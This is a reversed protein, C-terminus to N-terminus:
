HLPPPTITSALAEKIPIQPCDGGVKLNTYLIDSKKM